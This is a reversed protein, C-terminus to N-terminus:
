RGAILAIAIVPLNVLFMSSWAFHEVLLGGLTPGIAIGLGSVASWIGIAKAREVPNPFVGSLISLTAPMVLAAGAGMVAWAAIPEGAGSSVAAAVSGM